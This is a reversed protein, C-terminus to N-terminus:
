RLLPFDRHDSSRYYCTPKNITSYAMQMLGIFYPSPVFEYLKVKQDDIEASDERLLSYGAMINIYDTAKEESIEVANVLLKETFKSRSERSFLFMLLKWFEHDALHTFLDQLNTEERLFKSRGDSEPLFVFSPTGSSMDLMSLGDNSILHSYSYGSNKIATLDSESKVHLGFMSMQLNICYLMVTNYAEKKDQINMIRKSLLSCVDDYSYERGFLMDISVHFCDAIIPLLEIDPTSGCEWKSVAQPSVGIKQGLEEQTINQEKRLKFIAKGIDKLSM